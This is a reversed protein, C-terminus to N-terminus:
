LGLKKKLWNNEMTLKGIQEHLGAEREEFNNKKTEFVTDAKELLEKKWKHVQVTHVGFRQAIEKITSDEKLASLAVKKKFAASRSNKKQM